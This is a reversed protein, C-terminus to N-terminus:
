STGASTEVVVVFAAVEGADLVCEFGHCHRCVSGGKEDRVAWGYRTTTLASATASCGPSIPRGARLM